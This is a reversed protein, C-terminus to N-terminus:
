KKLQKNGKLLENIEKLCGNEQKLMVNERELSEILKEKESLKEKLQQIEKEKEEILKTQVGSSTESVPKGEDIKFHKFFNYKLANGIKHLTQVDMSEKGCLYVVNSASMDIELALERKTKHQDELLEEIKGGIHIYNSM